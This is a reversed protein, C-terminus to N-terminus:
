LLLSQSGEHAPFSEGPGVRTMIKARQDRGPKRSAMEVRCARKEALQLM